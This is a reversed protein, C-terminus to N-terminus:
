SIDVCMENRGHEDENEETKGKEEADIAARVNSSLYIRM